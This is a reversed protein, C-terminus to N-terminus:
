GRGQADGAPLIRRVARLFKPRPMLVARGCQTCRVRIDAGIRVVTWQNAGCAHPKRMEVVNGLHVRADERMHHPNAPM